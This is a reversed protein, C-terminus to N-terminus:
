KKEKEKKKHREHRYTFKDCMSTTENAIFIVTVTKTIIIIMMLIGKYFIM